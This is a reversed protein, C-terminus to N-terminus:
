VTRRVFTVRGNGSGIVIIDSQGQWSTPRYEPPLWLVRQSSWTIWDGTVGFAGGSPLNFNPSQTTTVTPRPLQQPINIVQGNALINSGNDVFEIHNDYTHSNYCLLEAGTTVDWVRVTNDYSSSAIRSGDPSFVMSNVWNSHGELTQECAGTQVDWLRVTNDGAGSAVRSGDPSFVVSNVTSSHGEYTLLCASWREPIERIVRVCQLAQDQFDNRVISALPSFHWASAYVQLPAQALILNFTLVFRRADQIFASIQGNEEVLSQLTVVLNVSESISGLLSLSELWHLFHKRLFNAAVDDDRIKQESHQLHYVWYRCAYRLSPPIHETVTTEDIDERLVGPHQLQCIDKRLGNPSQLLALCKDSLKTHACSEDIAFLRAQDSNSEKVLFERFSLHFLTVPMDPNSPVSLVSHLLRLQHDIKRRPIQLLQSLSITSLPNALLIISGVIERFDHCLKDKEKPEEVDVLIQRLAPLYTQEMQTMQGTNLQVLFTALRDHPDGRSGGIFRSITAAVIFLPDSLQILSELTQRGPWHPALAQDRPWLSNHEDRIRQFESELYVSIDHRITSPPIDHLAVDRHTETGIQAFGLNIPLDPRSTLFVQIHVSSLRRLSALLSLITRIDGERDCEDLADIVLIPRASSTPGIGALPQYILKEFQERLTERVIGPDEDIAQHIPTALEPIHRVLGAAITPFFLSANERDHEGRKFFFSAGLRGKNAFAEAVTRSITSKGTGASGRLWFICKGDIDDAWDYIGRLLDVRTDPHCRADHESQHSNFAAGTAVPLKSLDFKAELRDIGTRILHIAELQKLVQRLDEQQRKVAARNTANLDRDCISADIEARSAMKNCANEFASVDEIRWFADFARTISGRQYIRVAGALFQLILAYFEVLSTEFNTRAQSAPLTTLYEIYVRLRNSLYLATELGLLLAAMQSQASIAAELLLRIGAWPLGVHVPDVNSAVDGVQKFRDLWKIINDAEEQLTVTHGHFKWTWRKAQCTTQKERAAALAQQVLADVDTTKTVSHQQITDQDQLSLHLFVRTQFDQQTATSTGSANSQTAPAPSAAPSAAPSSPKSPPTSSRFPLLQRLRSRKSGPTALSM